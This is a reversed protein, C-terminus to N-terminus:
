TGYTTPIDPGMRPRRPAGYGDGVLRAPETSRYPRLRLPPPVGPPMPTYPHPSIPIPPYLSMCLYPHPSIPFKPISSYPHSSPSTSIYPYPLTPIHSRPSTPNYPHPHSHPSTSIHPQPSIPETSLSARGLSHCTPSQQRHPDTPVTGRMSSGGRQPTGRWAGIVPSCSRPGPLPSSPVSSAPVRRGGGDGDGATPAPPCRSPPCCRPAWLPDPPRRPAAPAAAASATYPTPTATAM